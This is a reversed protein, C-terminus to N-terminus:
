DVCRAGRLRSSLRRVGTGDVVTYSAIIIGTGLAATLAPLQTRDPLCDALALAVLGASIILVGTLEPASLGQGLVSVSLVTVLMPAVGRAVPYMQGFDGLKCAQLLLTQYVVQLVASGAIFPWAVSGPLPTFCVWIASVGVFALNILTFGALKNPIAHALANWVAHLVAATLVVVPM